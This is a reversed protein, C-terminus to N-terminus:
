WLWLGKWSKAFFGEKLKNSEHKVSIQSDKQFSKEDENLLTELRKDLNTWLASMAWLKKRLEVNECYKGWSQEERERSFM